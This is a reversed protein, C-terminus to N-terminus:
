FIGSPLVINSRRWSGIAAAIDESTKRVDHDHVHSALHVAVRFGSPFAAAPITLTHLTPLLKGM